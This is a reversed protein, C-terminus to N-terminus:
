ANPGRPSQITTILDSGKFAARVPNRLLASAVIGADGPWALNTKDPNSITVNRAPPSLFRGFNFQASAPTLDNWDLDDHALIGGSARLNDRGAENLGFRPATPHESIIFWWPENIMQVKTLKFGVLLYDPTLHVHFLHEANKVSFIPRGTNDPNNEALVAAVMAHPYRRVLAGRLVFVMYAEEGKGDTVHMGLPQRTFSHINDTLEDADHNWFRKFYTGRQDTPFGRWLLERGMEDSLGVLFAETFAPNTELLTVFDTEVISSLGPVLWDRDYADLAEYMPRNFQPAAMIPDIRLDDFWDAALWGPYQAIRGKVYRSMTKGPEVAQLLLTQNLKLTNRDPTAPLNSLGSAISIESLAAAFDLYPVARLKSIDTVLARSVSTEFRSLASLAQIPQQNVAVSVKTQDLLVTGVQRGAVSVGSSQKLLGANTVVSRSAVSQIAIPTNVALNMVARPATQLPSLSISSGQSFVLKKDINQVQQTAKVSVSAVGSNALSVLLASLPESVAPQKAADNPLLATVQANITDALMAGLDIQGVPIRWAAVQTLM